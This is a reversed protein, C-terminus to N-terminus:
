RGLFLRNPRLQQLFVVGNTAIRDHRDTYVPQRFRDCITRCDRFPGVTARDHNTYVGAGRRDCSTWRCRIFPTSTPTIVVQTPEIIEETNMVHETQNCSSILFMLFIFICAKKIKM